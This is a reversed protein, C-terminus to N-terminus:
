QNFVYVSVAGKDLVIFYLIILIFVVMLAGMGAKEYRLKRMYWRMLIIGPASALLLAKNQPMVDSFMRYFWPAALIVLFSAAMSLILAALAGIFFNNHKWM